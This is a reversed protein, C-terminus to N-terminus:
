KLILMWTTILYRENNQIQSATIPLCTINTQLIPLAAHM